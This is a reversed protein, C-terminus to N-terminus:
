TVVSAGICVYMMCIQRWDICLTSRSVFYSTLSSAAKIYTAFFNHCGEPLDAEQPITIVFPYPAHQLPIQFTPELGVTTVHYM